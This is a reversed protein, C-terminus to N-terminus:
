HCCMKEHSFLVLGLHRGAARYVYIHDSLVEDPAVDTENIERVMNQLSDPSPSKKCPLLIVEHISSPLVYFDDNLENAFKQLVEDYLLCVAGFARERNTLIYMPNAPKKEPANDAMGASLCDYVSPDKKLFSNGDRELIERILQDMPRIECGYHSRTNSFALLYLEEASTEWLEMHRKHILATSSGIFDNEITFYFVVALDLFPIFPLDELLTKNAARNILRFAIKGKLREFDQFLAVDFSAPCRHAEYVCEIDSLIDQMSAGNLYEEYYDNLYITPTINEGPQMILLGDLRLGNNKLVPQISVSAQSDMRHEMQCRIQSLFDPYNM